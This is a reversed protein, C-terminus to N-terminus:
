GAPILFRAIFLRYHYSQCTKGWRFRFSSELLAERKVTPIKRTFFGKYIALRPDSVRFFFTRNLDSADDFLERNTM